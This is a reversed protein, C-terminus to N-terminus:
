SYSEGEGGTDHAATHGGVWVTDPINFPRSFEPQSLCMWRMRSTATNVALTLLCYVRGRHVIVRGRHVICGGEVYM